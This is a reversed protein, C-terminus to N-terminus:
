NFIEGDARWQDGSYEIRNLSLTPLANFREAMEQLNAAAEFSFQHRNGDTQWAASKAYSVIITRAALVTQLNGTEQDRDISRPTDLPGTVSLGSGDSKFAVTIGPEDPPLSPRVTFPALAANFRDGSVDCELKELAWGYRSLAAVKVRAARCARIASDPKPKTTWPHVPTPEALQARAASEREMQVSKWHQYGVLGLVLIAAGSMLIVRPSFSQSNSLLQMSAAEEWDLSAILESSSSAGPIQWNDPAYVMDFLLRETDLRAQAEQATQFVNDTDPLICGANAALFVYRGEVEFVGCWSEATLLDALAGGLPVLRKDRWATIKGPLDTTALNRDGGRLLYAKAGNAKARSRAEARGMGSSSVDWGIGAVVTTKNSIHSTLM